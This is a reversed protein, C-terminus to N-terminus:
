LHCIRVYRFAPVRVAIQRMEVGPRNARLENSEAKEIRKRLADKILDFLFQFYSLRLINRTLSEYQSFFVKIFAETFAKKPPAFNRRDYLLRQQFKVAFTVFQICPHYHRVVDVDHETRMFSFPEFPYHVRDFRKGSRLCYIPRDYRGTKSARLRRCTYVLCHGNRAPTGTCLACDLLPENTHADRLIPIRCRTPDRGVPPCPVFRRSAPNSGAFADPTRQRCPHRREM